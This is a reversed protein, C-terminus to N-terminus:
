PLQHRSFLDWAIDATGFTYYNTCHAGVPNTCLTTEAGNACTTYTQCSANEPLTEPDGTCQNLAAWTSFNAPAGPFVLGPVVTTPGGYYPVFPDLLGRIQCEPVPRVPKCSACSPSSTPGTVCDFDVPAIAAILDAADCALKYAMGGGNSCGTAYIRKRDVCADSELAAVLARVFAVDDVASMAPDCCRGANWSRGYGDPRVVIFGKQDALSSWPTALQWTSADVDKPHMDIVVPLAISGTYTPPVHVLYTREIGKVTVTRTVDGPALVSAAPCGTGADRAVVAGSAAAADSAVAGDVSGSVDGQPGAGFGPMDNAGCAGLLAAAVAARLVVRASRTTEGSEPLSLGRIM